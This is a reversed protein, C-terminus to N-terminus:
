GACAVNPTEDPSTTPVAIPCEVALGGVTQGLEFPYAALIWEAGCLGDPSAQEGHVLAQPIKM